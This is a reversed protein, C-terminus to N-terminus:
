ALRRKILGLASLAAGLLLVTTGGDPINPIAVQQGSSWPSPPVSDSAQANGFVPLLMSTFYLVNASGLAPGSAGAAVAAFPGWQVGLGPVLTGNGASQVTVGLIANFSVGFNDVTTTDTLPNVMQYEYTYVGPNLTTSVEWNVTISGGGAFASTLSSTYEQNLSIPIGLAQQCSLVSVFLGAVLISGLTKYTNKM